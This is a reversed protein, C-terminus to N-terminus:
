TSIQHLLDTLSCIESDMDQQRASPHPGGIELTQWFVDIDHLQIPLVYDFRTILSCPLGHSTRLYHGCIYFIHNSKANHKEKTRSFEEIFSDINLFVTDLDGHCTSLWLKLVSHESEVRNTTEVGFHMHSKTWCRVFKHAFPNLWNNFLYHLFDPRSKWKTKLADLKMLYEQEDIEDLLKKWSRNIFRSAVEENKILEILKALVNQNIHRRCLMHYSLRMFMKKIRWRYTTAQENRMFASAVTFNKGTPTMGVVELLPMNYRVACGVNQEQFFRLINCHPVHSKRFQEIQIMQEETLKATQAHGHSYVGIAHNHRWDHIFLQWNECMAMQEGKLKFPCGCKKTGYPGGRKVQVEEEEDDLVPKKKPKNAGGRECGLTVYSRRDSTRSRLYRTVILYTNVKIATEKAWNVLEPKSNFIRDAAFLHGHDM